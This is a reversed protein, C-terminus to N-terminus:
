AFDSSKIKIRLFLHGLEQEGYKESMAFVAVSFSSFCMLAYRCAYADLIEIFIYVTL